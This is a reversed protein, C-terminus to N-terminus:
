LIWWTPPAIEGPNAVWVTLSLPSVSFVHVQAQYNVDKYQPLFINNLYDELQQPTSVIKPIDTSTFTYTGKLDTIQLQNNQCNISKITPM